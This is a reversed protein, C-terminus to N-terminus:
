WKVIGSTGGHFRGGPKMQDLLPFVELLTGIAHWSWSSIMSAHQIWTPVTRIGLLLCAIVITITYSSRGRFFDITIDFLKALIVEVTHLKYEGESSGYELGSWDAAM